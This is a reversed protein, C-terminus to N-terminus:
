SPFQLLAAIKEPRLHGDREMMVGERFAKQTLELRRQEFQEEMVRREKALTMAIAHRESNMDRRMRVGENEIAAQLAFYKREQAEADKRADALDTRERATDRIWRHVRHLAIVFLSIMTVATGSVSHGFSGRAVGVCILSMGIALLALGSAMM